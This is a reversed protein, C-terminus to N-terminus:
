GGGPDFLRMGCRQRGGTGAKVDEDMWGLTLRRGLNSTRGTNRGGIGDGESGNVMWRRVKSVRRSGNPAGYVWLRQCEIRTNDKAVRLDPTGSERVNRRSGMQQGHGHPDM